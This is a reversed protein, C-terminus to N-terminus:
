RFNVTYLNHQEAVVILTDMGAPSSAGDLYYKVTYEGALWQVEVQQQATLQLVYTAPGVAVIKIFHSTENKWDVPTGGGSSTQGNDSGATPQVPVKPVYPKKTATASPEMTATPPIETPTKTATPLLTATPLPTYTPYPTYTPQPTAGISMQCGLLLFLTAISICAIFKISNKM